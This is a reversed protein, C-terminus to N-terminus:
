GFQLSYYWVMLFFFGFLCEIAYIFVEYDKQKDPYYKIIWDAIIQASKKSM